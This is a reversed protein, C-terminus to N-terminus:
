ESLCWCHCGCGRSLAAALLQELGVGDLELTFNSELLKKEM